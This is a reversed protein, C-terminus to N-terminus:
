LPIVKTESDSVFVTKRFLETGAQTANGQNVVVEHKGNPIEIRLKATKKINRRTKYAKERITQTAYQKGDVTVLIDFKQAATFVVYSKGEVGGSHSYTGVGCNTMFLCGMVFLLCIIRKM